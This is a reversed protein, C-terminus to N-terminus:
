EAGHPATTLWMLIEYLMSLVYWAAGMFNSFILIYLQNARRPKIKGQKDSVPLGCTAKENIGANGSASSEWGHCKNSQDRLQM